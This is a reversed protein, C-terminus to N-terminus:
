QQIKYRLLTWTTDYNDMQQRYSILGINKAFYFTLIYKNYPLSESNQSFETKLVNYYIANNITISDYLGLFEYKVNDSYYFIAPLNSNRLCNGGTSHFTLSADDVNIFSSVMFDSNYEILARELYPDTEYGGEQILYSQSKTIYCSDLKQTIDNNYIWYSDKQFITYDRLFQSIYYTDPEKQRKCGPLLLVVALFV